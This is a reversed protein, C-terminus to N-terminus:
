IRLSHCREWTSYFEVTQPRSGHATTPNDILLLVSNVAQDDRQLLHRKFLQVFIEMLTAIPCAALKDSLLILIGLSSGPPLHLNNESDMFYVVEITYPYIAQGRNDQDDDTM